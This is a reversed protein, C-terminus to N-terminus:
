VSVCRRFEIIRIYSLTTGYYNREWEPVKTGNARRKAAGKDERAAGFKLERKHYSPESRRPLPFVLGEVPDPGPGLDLKKDVTGTEVGLLKLSYPGVPIDKETAKGDKDLKGKRVTGDILGEVEVFFFYEVKGGSVQSPIRALQRQFRGNDREEFIVVM